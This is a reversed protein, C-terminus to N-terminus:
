SVIKKLNVLFFKAKNNILCIIDIKINFYVDCSLICTILMFNYCTSKM